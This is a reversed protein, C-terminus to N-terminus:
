SPDEPSGWILRNLVCEIAAEDIHEARMSEAIFRLVRATVRQKDMLTDGPEDNRDCYPCHGPRQECGPCSM